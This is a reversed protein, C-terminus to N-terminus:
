SISRPSQNLEDMEISAPQNRPPPLPTGRLWEFHMLLENQSDEFTYRTEKSEPIGFLRRETDRRMMQYIGMAIAGAAGVMWVAGTVTLGGCSACLITAGFPTTASLALMAIIAVGVVFAMKAQRDYRKLREEPISTTHPSTRQPDISPHELYKALGKNFLDCGKSVINNM